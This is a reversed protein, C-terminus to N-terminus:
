QALHAVTPNLQEQTYIEGAIRVDEAAQVVIYTILTGLYAKCPFKYKM